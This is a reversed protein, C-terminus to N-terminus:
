DRWTVFTSTRDRFKRRLAAFRFDGLWSIQSALSNRSAAITLDKIARDDDGAATYAAALWEPDSTKAWHRLLVLANGRRGTLAFLRARAAWVWSANRPNRQAVRLTVAARSFDGLGEYSRELFDLAAPRDPMVELLRRFTDRANKFDRSYYYALGLTLLAEPSTADAAVARVAFSVAEQPRDEWLAVRSRLSLAAPDSPNMGLAADLDRRAEPLSRDCTVHLMASAVDGLTSIRVGNARAAMDRGEACDRGRNRSNFGDFADALALGAYGDPADPAEKTIRVFRSRALDLDVIRDLHYMALGIDERANLPLQHVISPTFAMWLAICFLSVVAFGGSTVLKFRSQRHPVDRRDGIRLRYGRGPVNEISVRPDPALAKRLLYITQTLNGEHVFGEPWVHAFIRERSVLTNVNALLLALLQAAKRTLAIEDGNRRLLRSQPDFTFSELKISETMIFFRRLNQDFQSKRSCSPPRM